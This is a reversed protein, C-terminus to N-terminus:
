ESDPNPELQMPTETVTKVGFLELNESLPSKGIQKLLWRTVVIASFMSILVGMGLTAAFGRVISTGVMFLIICTILTSINGDRISPWARQFGTEVATGFLKGKKLEEKTREFILINADVAMGISLIIGAMGALTLVVYQGSFLFLPLKLIALFVIAYITLAFDALLGMLRYMVIMFLMLIFVGILAAKVSTRLAEAGLTAEVTRQGALHIPAPIAGTNLDQALEKAEEFTRSGTIIATGGAIETQVTPASVLQGGVFIAIRKGVNAKTLEHFIEGGQPDFMIQVVPLNTTPDLTVTASRFHKGDLTTDKWGTPLLSFFLSRLVIVDEDRTIDRSSVADAFQSARDMADEGTVKLEDYTVLDPQRQPARDARILHFGFQTETPESVEGEVLAFAAEEFVPVMVGRGFEGLSGKEAASPGDSYTEALTEFSEGEDIKMKLEEALSLAEGRSRTVSEDASLADKYAILIHSAAMVENGEIRETLFSVSANQEDIPVVGIDGLDMEQLKKEVPDELNVLAVEKHEEHSVGEETNAIHDLAISPDTITRATKERPKVVEVLFIGPVEKERIAGEPTQEPIMVSGEVRRVGSTPSRDWMIELGNHLQDFFYNQEDEFGVGLEDGLDEGVVKLSEGEKVRGHTEAVQELVTEEHEETPETFEEKFELQITKGVIDICEQTEVVGPCEVLLHKEDGIYSPTIVAESVGLANIRKELVTRIAEVIFRKQEDIASLQARASNIRDPPAGEREFREIDEKLSTKQEEMEQESIRFDLQTGGVLDLGYHLMPARLFSPVWTRKSQPIAIVLIFIAVVITLAPWFRKRASPM